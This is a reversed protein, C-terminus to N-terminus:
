VSYITPLTLHTYSVPGVDLVTYAPPPSAATVDDVMSLRDVASTTLPVDYSPPSTTTPRAPSVSLMLEYHTQLVVM